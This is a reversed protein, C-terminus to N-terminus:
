DKECHLHINLLTENTIKIFIIIPIPKHSGLIPDNTTTAVVIEFTM